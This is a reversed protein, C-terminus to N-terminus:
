VSRLSGLMATSNFNINDEVRQNVKMEELNLIIECMRSSTSRTELGAILIPCHNSLGIM